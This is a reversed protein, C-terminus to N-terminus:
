HRVLYGARVGILPPPLKPRVLPSLSSLLGLSSLAYARQLLCQELAECLRERLEDAEVGWLTELSVHRNSLEGLPLNLFAFAGGPKFRVGINTTQCSTDIISFKSQAGSVVSGRFQSFYNPDEQNYVRVEDESLNIALSLTGSPLHREKVHPVRYDEWFWFLDVFESLPAAPRHTAWIMIKTTDGKADFSIKLLRMPWIRGSNYDQMFHKPPPDQRLAIIRVMGALQEVQRSLTCPTM